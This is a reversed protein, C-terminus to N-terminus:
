DFWNLDEKIEMTNRSWVMDVDTEVMKKAKGDYCYLDGDSIYLLTSDNVRIYRTVNEAIYTEEGKANIMSLEYGFGERYGAYALIVDDSYLNMEGLVVDQALRTNTGNKYVCLDCFYTENNLYVGDAYYLADGDTGLVHADDSM